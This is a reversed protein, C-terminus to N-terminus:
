ADFFMDFIEGKLEEVTPFWKESFSGNVSCTYLRKKNSWIIVILNDKIQKYENEKVSRKWKKNMFSMRREDNKKKCLGLYTLGRCYKFCCNNSIPAKLKKCISISIEVLEKHEDTIKFIYSNM